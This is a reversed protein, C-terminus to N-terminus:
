EDTELEDGPLEKVLRDLFWEADHRENREEMCVYNCWNNEELLKNDAVEFIEHIIQLLRDKKM